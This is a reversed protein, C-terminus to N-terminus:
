TRLALIYDMIWQGCKEFFIASKENAVVIM